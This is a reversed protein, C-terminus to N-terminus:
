GKHLAAYWDSDAVAAGIEVFEMIPTGDGTTLGLMADIFQEYTASDKAAVRVRGATAADLVGLPDVGVVGLSPSASAVASPVGEAGVVGLFKTPLTRNAVDNVWVRSGDERDEPRRIPRELVDWHFKLGNYNAAVAPGGGEKARRLMDDKAGADWAHQMFDSYASNASFLQKPGSPHKVTVGGDYSDWGPGTSYRAPWEDGDDCQVMLIISTNGTQPDTTFTGDVITGDFDDKLGSGPKYPNFEESMM